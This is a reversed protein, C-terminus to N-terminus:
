IINIIKRSTLFIDARSTKLRFRTSWEKSLVLPHRKYFYNEELM